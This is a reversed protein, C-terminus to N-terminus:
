ENDKNRTEERTNEDQKVMWDAVQGYRAFWNGTGKNVCTTEGNPNEYRTCFIHVSDFHEGIKQLADDIVAMELDNSEM